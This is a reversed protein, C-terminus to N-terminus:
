DNKTGKVRPLITIKDNHYGTVGITGWWWPYDAAIMWRRKRTFCGSSVEQVSSATVTASRKVGDIDSRVIFRDGKRVNRILRQM